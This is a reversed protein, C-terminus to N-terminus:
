AQWSSSRGTLVVARDLLFTNVDVEVIPGFLGAHGAPENLGFMAISPAPLTTNDPM